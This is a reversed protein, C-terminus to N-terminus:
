HRGRAQGLLAGNAQHSRVQAEELAEGKQHARETPPLDKLM